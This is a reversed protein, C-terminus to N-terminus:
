VVNPPSFVVPVRRLCLFDIETNLIMDCFWSTRINGLLAAFTQLKQKVTAPPIIFSIVSIYFTNSFFEFISGTTHKIVTPCLMRRYVKISRCRIM